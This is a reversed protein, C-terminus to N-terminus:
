SGMGLYILYCQNATEVNKHNNLYSLLILWKFEIAESEESSAEEGWSLFGAEDNHVTEM